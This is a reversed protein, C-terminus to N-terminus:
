EYWVDWTDPGLYLSCMTLGGPCPTRKILRKAANLEVVMSCFIPWGMKTNMMWARGAKVMFGTSSWSQWPIQRWFMARYTGTIRLDLEQFARLNLSEEGFQNAQIRTKNPGLIEVYAAKVAVEDFRFVQGDATTMEMFGGSVEPLKAVFNNLENGMTRM